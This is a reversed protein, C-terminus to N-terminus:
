RLPLTSVDGLSPLTTTTSQVCFITKSNNEGVRVQWCPDFQNKEEEIPKPVPAILEIARQFYPYPLWHKPDPDLNLRTLPDPDLLAFYGVFISFLKSIEHKSTSITRKSPQLSRRYRPSGKHLGLFLYIASKSWFPLLNTKLQIRKWNKMMLGNIRIRIWGLISSGSGSGPDIFWSGVCQLYGYRSCQIEVTKRDSRCSRSQHFLLACIM